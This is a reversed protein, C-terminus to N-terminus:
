GLLRGPVQIEEFTCNPLELGRAEWEKCRHFSWLSMALKRVVRRTSCKLKVDVQFEKGGGSQRM